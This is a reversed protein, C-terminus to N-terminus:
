YLSMHETPIMDESPLMMKVVARTSVSIVFKEAVKSHDSHFLIEVIM